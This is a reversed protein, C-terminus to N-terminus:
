ASVEETENSPASAGVLSESLQQTLIGDIGVVHRAESIVPFPKKRADRLTYTRYPEVKSLM